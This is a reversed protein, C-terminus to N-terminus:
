SCRSWRVDGSRRLKGRAAVAAPAHGLTLLEDSPTSSTSTTEHAKVDTSVCSTFTRCFTASRAATIM